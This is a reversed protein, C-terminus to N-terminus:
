PLRSKLVWNLALGAHPSGTYKYGLASPQWYKSLTDVLKSFFVVAIDSLGNISSVCQLTNLLFCVFFFFVSFLETWGSNFLFGHSSNIKQKLKSNWRLGGRILM